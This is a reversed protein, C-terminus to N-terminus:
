EKIQALFENPAKWNKSLSSNSLSINTLLTYHTLNKIEEKNGPFSIKKDIFFPMHHEM